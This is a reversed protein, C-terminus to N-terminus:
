HTIDHRILNAVIQRRALCALLLLERACRDSALYIFERNISFTPITLGVRYQLLPSPIGQSLQFM